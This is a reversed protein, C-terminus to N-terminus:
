RAMFLRSGAPRDLFYAAWREEGLPSPWRRGEVWIYPDETEGLITGKTFPGMDDRSNSHKQSPITDTYRNISEPECFSTALHATASPGGVDGQYNKEDAHQQGNPRSGA